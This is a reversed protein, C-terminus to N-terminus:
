CRPHKGSLFYRLLILASNFKAKLILKVFDKILNTPSVYEPYHRSTIAIDYLREKLRFASIKKETKSLSHLIAGDCISNISINRKSLRRIRLYFSTDIGYLAFHEDFVNGYENELITVINKRIVLGSGISMICSSDIKRSKTVVVNNETPYHQVNDSISIIRPTLIDFESNVVANFYDNRLHSDDDLIIYFKSAPTNKIFDNYIKSLPMNKLSEKFDVRWGKNKLNEVFLSDQLIADPGNNFITLGVDNWNSDQLTKLTTSENMEKDYLIVLISIASM